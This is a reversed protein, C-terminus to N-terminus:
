CKGSHRDFSDQSQTLSYTQKMLFTNVKSIIGARKLATNVNDSLV